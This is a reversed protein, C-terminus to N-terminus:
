AASDEFSLLKDRYHEYQKRRAAIEAPLGASLDSVLLDFADLIRVIEEQIALPPLPIRVKELRKKSINMRTVGNACGQVQLRLSRSALVHGLFGEAFEGTEPRWGICFSNLFTPTEPDRRVECALGVGELDESSGTLLVDGKAIQNQKETPGIHVLTDITHPLSLNSAVVMYSVYRSGSTGFDAKTKGSLGAYTHGAKGMSVEPVGGPCLERILGSLPHGEADDFAMLRNRTEEYQTTRAELEAELEAGLETFTDLTQVIDEQIEIPLYPLEQRSIVSIWHRAHSSPTYKNASLWHFLFRLETASGSHATIMKMASSKAKFPFEVWQFGTTFDDFIIVPSDPSANYIGDTEDTYGLVFTQGATLVKTGLEVYNTSNVLYKTPQEYGFKEGIPRWDIAESCLERILEDVRSM